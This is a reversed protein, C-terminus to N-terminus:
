TAPGYSVFLVAAALVEPIPPTPLIIGHAARAVVMIEEPPAESSDEPLELAM